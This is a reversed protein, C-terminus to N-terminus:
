EFYIQLESSLKEAYKGWTLQSFQKMNQKSYMNMSEENEILDCMAAYLDIASGVRIIKGNLNNELEVGTNNTAVITMGCVLAQLVSISYGEIYTPHLLVDTRNMLYALYEQSVFGHYIVRPLKLFAEFEPYCAGCIHLEVNSNITVIKKWAEFILDSGKHFSLTGVVLFKIQRKKQSSLIRNNFFIDPNYGYNIVIIKKEYEPYKFIISDKVQKSGVVILDALEIERLKNQYYESNLLDNNLYSIQDTYSKPNIVFNYEDLLTTFDLVLNVKGSFEEFVLKSCGDFGIIVDPHNRKIKRIVTKQFHVVFFNMDRHILYRFFVVLYQRCKLFLDFSIIRGKKKIKFFKLLPPLAISTHLEMRIGKQKMLNEAQEFNHQRFPHFSVVKM